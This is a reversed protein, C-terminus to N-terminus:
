NAVVPPSAPLFKFPPADKFQDAVEGSFVEGNQITLNKAPTGPKLNLKTLSVWFTNPRTASDFYCVLNKQDSVTRWLTSAINPEAPTTIGLPVSVARQVSLVEAV